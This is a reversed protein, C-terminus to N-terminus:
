YQYYPLDIYLERIWRWFNGWRLHSHQWNILLTECWWDIEQREKRKPMQFYPRALYILIHVDECHYKSAPTNGTYDLIKQALLFPKFIGFNHIPERRGRRAGQLLVSRSVWMFRLRRM